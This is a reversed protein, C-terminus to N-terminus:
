SFTARGLDIIYAVGCALEGFNSEAHDLCRNFDEKADQVTYNDDEAFLSTAPVLLLGFVLIFAVIRKM